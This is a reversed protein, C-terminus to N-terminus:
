MRHMANFTGYFNDHLSFKGAREKKICHTHASHVTCRLLRTRASSNTNMRRMEFKKEVEEEETQTTKIYLWKRKLLNGDQKEDEVDDADDCEDVNM